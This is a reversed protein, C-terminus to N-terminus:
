DPWSAKVLLFSAANTRRSPHDSQGADCGRFRLIPAVRSHRSILATSALVPRFCAFGLMVADLAAGNVGKRGRRRGVYLTGIKGRRRGTDFLRVMREEADVQTLFLYGYKRPTAQMSFFLYIREKASATQTLFLHPWGSSRYRKQVGDSSLSLGVYRVYRLFVPEKDRASGSIGSASDVEIHESPDRTQQNM